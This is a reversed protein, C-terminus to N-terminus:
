ENTNGARRYENDSSPQTNRVSSPVETYSTSLKILEEIYEARVANVLDVDGLQRSVFSILSRKIYLDVLYEPAAFVANDSSPVTPRRVYFVACETVPRVFILGMYITWKPASGTYRQLTVPQLYPVYSQKNTDYVDLVRLYSASPIRMGLVGGMINTDTHLTGDLPYSAYTILEQWPLESNVFNMSSQISATVKSASTNDSTTTVRREGAQLLVKNVFELKTTVSQVADISM